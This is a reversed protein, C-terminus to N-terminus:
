ASAEFRAREVLESEESSPLWRNLHGQEVLELAKPLVGIRDPLDFRGLDSSFIADLPAGFPNRKAGVFRLRSSDDIQGPKLRPCDSRGANM